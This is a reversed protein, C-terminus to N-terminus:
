HRTKHLVQLQTTEEPGLLLEPNSTPSLQNRIPVGNVLQCPLQLLPIFSVQVNFISTKVQGVALFPCSKQYSNTSSDRAWKVSFVNKGFTTFITKKIPKDCFNRGLVVVLPSYPLVISWSVNVPTWFQNWSTVVSSTLVSVYLNHQLLERWAANNVAPEVGAQHSAKEGNTERIEPLRLCDM